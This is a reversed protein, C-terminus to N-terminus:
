IIANSKCQVTGNKSGDYVQNSDDWIHSVTRDVKKANGIYQVARFQILTFRNPM